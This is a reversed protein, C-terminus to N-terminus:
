ASPMPNLEDACIRRQVQKRIKKNMTRSKKAAAAEGSCFSM